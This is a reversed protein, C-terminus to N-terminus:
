RADRVPIASWVCNRRRSVATLTPHFRVLVEISGSESMPSKWGDGDATRQEKAKGKGSTKRELIAKGTLITQTNLLGTTLSQATTPPLSIARTPRPSPVRASPHPSHAGQRLSSSTSSGVSSPAVSSSPQPIYPPPAPSLSSRRPLSLSM